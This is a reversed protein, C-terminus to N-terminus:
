SKTEELVRTFLDRFRAQECAILQHDRFHRLMRTSSQGDLNMRERILSVLEADSLKKRNPIQPLAWGEMTESVASKHREIDGSGVRPLIIEVFHRVARSAFDTRTGKSTSQPGDLRSDYPLVFDKLSAPLERSISLGVIRLRRREADTLALLDDEVLHAYVSSLGIVVIGSQDARILRTIPQPNHHNILSWWEGPNFKEACRASIDDEAGRVLTLGYSPVLHSGMVLGLGASIVALESAAVNAAERAEQFSRGGYVKYAPQRDVADTIRARWESALEAMSGRPLNSAHLRPM